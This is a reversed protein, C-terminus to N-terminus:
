MRIDEPRIGEEPEGRREVRSYSSTVADGSKYDCEGRAEVDRRRGRQGWRRAM